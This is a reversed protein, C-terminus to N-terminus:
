PNGGGIAGFQKAMNVLSLLEAETLTLSMNVLAKDQAVTFSKGAKALGISGAAQTIQPLQAQVMAVVKAASAEADTGIKMAMALDATFNIGLSVTKAVMGQAKMDAQNKAPVMITAWLHAKTDTATVADRLAKAKKSVALNKGKGKGKNRAVDIEGKMKGKKAFFIRNDIVAADTDKHTYIDIGQYSTKVADPIKPLKDKLNAGEVVIVMDKPGGDQLDKAGGGAFLITDVDKMPDLGLETLKAKADPSADLLKTMGKQLLTSGRADAVNFVLVIQSSEPAFKLLDTGNGAHAPASAACLAAGLVTVALTSKFM